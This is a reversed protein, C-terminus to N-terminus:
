LLVINHKNKLKDYKKHINKLLSVKNLNAAEEKLENNENVLLKYKIELEQFKKTLSKIQEDMDQKSLILEREREKYKNTLANIATEINKKEVSFNM